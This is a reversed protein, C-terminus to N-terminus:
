YTNNNNNNIGNLGLRLFCKHRRTWPFIWIPRRVFLSSWRCDYFVARCFYPLSFRVAYDAMDCCWGSATDGDHAWQETNTQEYQTHLAMEIENKNKIKMRLWCLPRMQNTNYRSNVSTRCEKVAYAVIYEFIDDTIKAVFSQVFPLIRSLARANAMLNQHRVRRAHTHTRDTTWWIAGFSM